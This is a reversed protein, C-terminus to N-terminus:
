NAIQAQFFAAAKEVTPDVFEDKWYLDFHDAGEVITVQPKGPLAEVYAEAGPRTVADSGYAVFIPVEELMHVYDLPDFSIMNDAGAAALQNNWNPTDGPKGPLYYAAMGRTVETPAADIEAQTEPVLKIYIDEGTAAYHAKAQAVQALLTKRLSGGGGAGAVYSRAADVYPSAVALAKIREDYATAFTAVEAGRCIGMNFLSNGDVQELGQLYGVVNKMDEAQEYPNMIFRRGTSEGWGAPDFAVTVFGKEAMKQAYIGVTQEKVGTAPVTMVVAPLKESGDYTSPLYVHAALTNEGSTISVANQGPKLNNMANDSSSQAFTTAPLLAVSSMAVAGALLIRRTFNIM